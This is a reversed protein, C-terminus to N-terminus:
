PRAGIELRLSQDGMEENIAEVLEVVQANDFSKGQVNITVIREAGGEGGVGFAPQTTIPEAASGLPAGSVTGGADQSGGLQKVYAGTAALSLAAMAAGLPPGGTKAGWEYSSVAASWGERIAEAIRIAQQM